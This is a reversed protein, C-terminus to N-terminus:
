FPYIFSQKHRNFRLDCIYIIDKRVKNISYDEKNKHRSILLLHLLILIVIMMM